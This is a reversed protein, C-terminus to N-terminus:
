GELIKAEKAVFRSRRGYPAPIHLLDHRAYSEPAPVFLIKSGDPVGDARGPRSQTLWEQAVTARSDPKALDRAPFRLLFNVNESIGNELHKLYNAHLCIEPQEHETGENTRYDRERGRGCHGTSGPDIGSVSRARANPIDTSSWSSPGATSNLAIGCNSAPRDFNRQARAASEASSRDL